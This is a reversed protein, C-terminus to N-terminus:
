GIFTKNKIGFFGAGISSPWNLLSNLSKTCRQKCFSGCLLGLARSNSRWGQTFFAFRVAYRVSSISLSSRHDAVCRSSPPWSSSSLYSSDVTCFLSSSSKHSKPVTLGTPPRARPLLPASLGIFPLPIFELLECNWDECDFRDNEFLSFASESSTSFEPRPVIRPLMSGGGSGLVGDGLLCDCTSCDGLAAALTGKGTEGIRFGTGASSVGCIDGSLRM